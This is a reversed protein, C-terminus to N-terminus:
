YLSTSEDPPRLKWMDDWVRWFQLLKSANSLLESLPKDLEAALTTRRVNYYDPIIKDIYTELLQNYQGQLQAYSWELDILEKRSAEVKALLSNSGYTEAKFADISGYLEKFAAQAEPGMDGRAVSLTIVKRYAKDAVTYDAYAQDLEKYIAILEAKPDIAFSGNKINANTMESNGENMKVQLDIMKNLVSLFKQREAVVDPQQSQESDFEKQVVRELEAQLENRHKRLKQLEQTFTKRNKALTVMETNIQERTKVNKQAWEVLPGDKPIYSSKQFQSIENRRAQITQEKQQLSQLEPSNPDEKQLKRIQNDLAKAEKSLQGMEPGLEALKATATTELIEFQEAFKRFALNNYYAQILPTVQNIAKSDFDQLLPNKGIKDLDQGLQKSVWERILTFVEPDSTGPRHHDFLMHAVWIDNGKFDQRKGIVHTETNTLDTIYEKFIDDRGLYLEDRSGMVALTPLYKEGKHGPKTWNVLGMFTEASAGSLASSKGQLLLKVTLDREAEPVLEMLATNSRILEAAAEKAELSKGPANDLPGSLNIFGNFAKDIGLDVQDSLRMLNDAHLGGMSHGGAFVPVNQPIYKHRFDVLHKYYDLPALSQERPGYAHMPADMSLVVVGRPAFYNAMAAAVHHGTTKTGGGHMFVIVAKATTPVLMEPHGQLSSAVIADIPLGINTSLDKGQWQQNLRLSVFTGPEAGKVAGADAAMLQFDIIATSNKLTDKISQPVERTGKWLKSLHYEQIPDVFKPELQASGIKVQESYHSVLRPAVQPAFVDRCVLASANASTTIILTAVVQFIFCWPRVVTFVNLM